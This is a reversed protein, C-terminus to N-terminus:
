RYRRTGFEVEELTTVKEFISTQLEAVGSYCKSVAAGVTVLRIQSQIFHFLTVMFPIAQRDLIERTVACHAKKVTTVDQNQISFRGQAPSERSTRDYTAKFRGHHVPRLRLVAITAAIKRVSSM